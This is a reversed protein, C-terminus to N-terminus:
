CIMVSLKGLENQKKLSYYFSTKIKLTLHGCVGWKVHPEQEFVIKLNVKRKSSEITAQATQLQNIQSLLSSSQSQLTSNEVQLSVSEEQLQRLKQKYAEVQTELSSDIRFDDQNSIEIFDKVKNKASSLEMQLKAVENKLTEREKVLTSIQDKSDGGDAQFNELIRKLNIMM